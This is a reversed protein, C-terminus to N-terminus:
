SSKRATLIALLRAQKAKLEEPKREQALMIEELLAEMAESAEAQDLPKLGLFKLKSKL